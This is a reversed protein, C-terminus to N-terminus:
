IKSDSLKSKGTLHRAIELFGEGEKARSVFKPHHKMLPLYERVNAVACSLDFYQFMPEDNPSDGVYIVNQQNEELSYNLWNKALWKCASLKNYDGFWGNVHINSIKAHAGHEEFIEKIRKVESQKLSPNVDEAFDIALDFRRCFQDAAIRARPIEEHVQRAISRLKTRDQRRKAVTTFEHRHMTKGDYRYVLGGNEGVVSNVPWQRAILDCWGAPRGTVPIVHIGHRQLLWLASYSSDPLRGNETLTGDIDTFLVEISKRPLDQIQKM